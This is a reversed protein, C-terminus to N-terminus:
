RSSATFFILDPSRTKRWLAAAVGGGWQHPATLFKKIIPQYQVPVYNGQFLVPMAKNFSADWTKPLIILQLLASALMAVVGCLVTVIAAHPVHFIALVVPAAMVVAAGLRQITVAM